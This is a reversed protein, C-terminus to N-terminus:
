FRQARRGKLFTVTVKLSPRESVLFLDCAALLEGGSQTGKRIVHWQLVAQEENSLDLKVLPAMETRGLFEASGQFWLFCLLMKEGKKVM